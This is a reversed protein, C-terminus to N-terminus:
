GVTTIRKVIINVGKFRPMSALKNRAIENAALGIDRQKKNNQIPIGFISNSIVNHMNIEFDNEM